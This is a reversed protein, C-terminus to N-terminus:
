KRYSKYFFFLLTLICPPTQFMSINYSLTTSIQLCTSVKSLSWRTTIDASLCLYLLAIILSYLFVNLIETVKGVCAELIFDYLNYM